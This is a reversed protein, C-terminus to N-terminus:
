PYSLLKTGISAEFDTKFTLIGIDDLRGKKRKVKKLSTFALRRCIKV